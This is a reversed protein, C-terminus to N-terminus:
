AAFDKEFRTKHLYINSVVLLALPILPTMANAMGEVAGHAVIASIFTIGFGAYAWEKIRISIMPLIIVLAGIIKFIALEIRFYPPFGLHEFAEIINPNSFYMLAVLAGTILMLSTSTWYIIKHRKM